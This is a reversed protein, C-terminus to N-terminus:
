LIGEFCTDVTKVIGLIGVAGLKLCVIRNSNNKKDDPANICFNTSLAM